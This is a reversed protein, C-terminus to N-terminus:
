SPLLNDAFILLEASQNDAAKRAGEPSASYQWGTEVIRFGEYLERVRPVNGYSLIWNGRERLYNRLAVHDFHKHLEGGWGYCWRSPTIYPPDLYAVVGPHADLTERWDAPPSLRLRPPFVFRRLQEVKVSTLRRYKIQDRACSPSGAFGLSGWSCVQMAYTIAARKALDSVREYNDQLRYYLFDNATFGTMDRVHSVVAEKMDQVAYWFDMVPPFGDTAHVTIGSCAALLEVSGGGLFPSVVETVHSPIARVIRKAGRSKGGMYPLPSRATAPPELEFANAM